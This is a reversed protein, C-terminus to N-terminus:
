HQASPWYFVFINWIFNSDLFELVFKKEKVRKISFLTIMEIFGYNKRILGNPGSNIYKSNKSSFKCKGLEGPFGTLFQHKIFHFYVRSTAFLCSFNPSAMHCRRGYHTLTRKKTYQCLIDCVFFNGKILTEKIPHNYTTTIWYEYKLPM